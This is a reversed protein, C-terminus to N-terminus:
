RNQGYRNVEKLIFKYAKQMIKLGELQTEKSYDLLNEVNFQQTVQFYLNMWKKVQRENIAPIVKVPKPVEKKAIAKEEQIIKKAVQKTETAITQSEKRFLELRCWLLSSNHM